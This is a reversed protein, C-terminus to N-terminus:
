SQEKQSSTTPNLAARVAEIARRLRRFSKAEASMIPRDGLFDSADDAASLLEQLEASLTMCEETMKM